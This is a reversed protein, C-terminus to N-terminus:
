ASFGPCGTQAAHKKTFPYERCIRPKVAEITCLFASGGPQPALFPCAAATEGTNPDVWIRYEIGGGAAPQERVWALIDRRGLRQWQAVDGATCQTALRRCCHGCGKCDFGKMQNEIWVGAEAGRGPRADVEFVVGAIRALTETDLEATELIHVLYFGLAEDTVPAFQGGRRIMCKGDGWASGPKFDRGLIQSAIKRFLGPQTGYQGFDSAVADVVQAATLFTKLAESM